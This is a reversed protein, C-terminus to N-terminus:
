WVVGLVQRGVSRTRKRQGNRGGQWCFSLGRGVFTRMAHDSPYEKVMRLKFLNIQDTVKDVQGPTNCFVLNKIRYEEYDRGNSISVLYGKELESM